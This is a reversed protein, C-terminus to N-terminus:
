KLVKLMHLSTTKYGEAEYLGRATENNAFVNLGIADVGRERVL